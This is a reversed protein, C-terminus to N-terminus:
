SIDLTINRLCIYTVTANKYKKYVHSHTFTIPNKRKNYQSEFGPPIIVYIKKCNEGIYRINKYYATGWSTVFYECNWVINATEIENHKSPILNYFDYKACFKNVDEVKLIGTKTVNTCIDCKVICVKKHLCIFNSNLVYKKLFPEVKIWYSDFLMMQTLRIFTVEKIKYLIGPKIFIIKDEGIIKSVLEIMGNQTNSSLLVNCTLNNNLYFIIYEWISAYGHVTGHTFSSIFSVTEKDIYQYNKIKNNFKKILNSFRESKEIQKEKNGRLNCIYDTSYNCLSKDKFAFVSNPSVITYNVEKIKVFANTTM